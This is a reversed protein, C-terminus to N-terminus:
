KKTLVGKKKLYQILPWEERLKKPEFIAKVGSDYLRQIYKEKWNGDLVLVWEEIKENEVVQDNKFLYRSARIRGALEGSRHYNDKISSKGHVVIFKGHVTPILFYVGIKASLGRGLDSFLNNIPVFKQKPYGKYIIGAQELKYAIALALPNIDSHRQLHDRKIELINNLCDENSITRDMEKSIIKALYYCQEYTFNIPSYTKFLRDNGKRLMIRNVEEMLRNSKLKCFGSFIDLVWNYDSKFRKIKYGNSCLFLYKRMKEINTFNNTANRLFNIRMLLDKPNEIPEVYEKLKPYREKLMDSLINLEKESAFEGSGSRNLLSNLISKYCKTNIAKVVKPPKRKRLKEKNVVTRLIKSENPLDRIKYKELAHKISHSSILKFFKKVTCELTNSLSKKFLYFLTSHYKSEFDWFFICKDFIRTFGNVCWKWPQPYGFLFLLSRSNKAQLKFEILENFTEFFKNQSNTSLTWHTVFVVITFPHRKLVFDPRYLLSKFPKQYGNIIEKLSFLGNLLYMTLIEYFKGSVVAERKSFKHIVTSM